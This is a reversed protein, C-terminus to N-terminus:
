NTAFVNILDPSVLGGFMAPVGEESMAIRPASVEVEMVCVPCGAGYSRKASPQSACLSLSLGPRAPAELAPRVDM